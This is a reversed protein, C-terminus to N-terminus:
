IAERGLNNNDRLNDSGTAKRMPKKDALLTEVKDSDMMSLIDGKLESIFEQQEWYMGIYKINLLSYMYQTVESPYELIINADKPLDENYKVRHWLRFDDENISCHNETIVRGDKGSIRYDANLYSGDKEITKIELNIMM